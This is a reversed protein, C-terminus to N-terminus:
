FVCSLVVVGGTRSPLFSVARAAARDRLGLVTLVAGTAVLAAGVGDLIGGTLALRQGDNYLAQNHADWSNTGAQSNGSLADANSMAQVGFAIGTALTGLGAAALAVGTWLKERWHRPPPPLPRALPAPTVTPPPGNPPPPVIPAPKAEAAAAAAAVAKEKQDRQERDLREMEVILADVDSRNPAAPLLRLYMRYAYLAQEPDKKLRHVQAINFLLGTAHTLEYARKFEDIATDLEGLEYHTMGKKYLERAEAEAGRKPDAARKSEAARRSDARRPAAAAAGSFVCAVWLTLAILRAAYPM